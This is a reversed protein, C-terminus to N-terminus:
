FGADMEMGGSDRMQDRPDIRYNNIKYSLTLMVVRPERQMLVYQTFGNGSATFERKMSGFLDRIQLTASLKRKFFDQRVAINMYYMGEATGQATVSPGQYGLNAQIRSTPSITFTANGNAKWSVNSNSIDEGFLNGQIRYYYLNTSANLKFWKSFQWNAMIEGGAVHDENINEFRQYFIGTEDDYQTVRSILNTTNRYYAELALFNKGWGKQYGLEVSNVYEPELAPNGIRITQKDIYSPISDLFYSRPRNVRKSYSAMLQNDNKFQRALHLTPYYDFRNIEYSTNFNEYEILRFTYEGRMGIQYQLKNIKGSLQAYASQINRFFTIDSSNEGLVSWSDTDPDYEEYDFDEFNDDIRAQYGAEFSGYTIPKSYDAQLRFESSMGDEINRTRTPRANDLLNYNEDAEQYELEEMGGGFRQSINGMIVLKHATTDFTQTFNVNGSYYLRDRSMEDINVYYSDETPPITYERSTNSRNIGFLFRGGSAEVAINSRPSINYDFGGKIQSGGRVFDFDGIASNILESGDEKFTIHERQLTGDYLNNDYSGGLFYNFDGQKRNILGDIRYKNNRGISANIIGTTGSEVQKKLIVNVIGGNGDPDYKVSPNTIIEINQISSAPIQRLADAADLVTPKGNILVTFNSSGRLSVNGEIDVTVSPTNELVDVATGGAANLDEGVNVVKKDIKYEVRRQDAVIEVEDLAESSLSLRMSGLDINRNERSIVLPSIVSKEYGVFKAVLYYEGYPVDELEFYGSNNTVTGTILSSDPFSFIAVSTYEMPVGSGADIVKGIIVGKSDPSSIVPNPGSQAIVGLAYFIIIPILLIKKFYTKM